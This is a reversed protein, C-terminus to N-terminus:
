GWDCALFVPVKQGQWHEVLFLPASLRISQSRCSVPIPSGVRDRFQGRHYRLTPDAGRWHNVDDEPIEISPEQSCMMPDTWLVQLAIEVFKQESEIAPEPRHHSEIAYQFDGCSHTCWGIRAQVFTRPM